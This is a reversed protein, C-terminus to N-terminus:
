LVVDGVALAAVGALRVAFDAVGDGTVDGLLDGTVADFRLQGAVNTFAGTGLFTFAQNGATAANADIASLDIVDEGAAFNQITDRAPNTTGSDTVRRFVFTDADGGGNMVDRGAGGTLTDDGDGGSLSDNQAGGLLRDDGDDGQLTDAQGRGRLEDDGEGGYLTDDGAGGDLTDNGAQGFLTDDGTLGSLRNALVNGLLLNPQANGAGERASDLLRLVEVHPTAALDYSVTSEITDTGFVATEVIVLTESSVRYTDNGEGGLVQGLVTGGITDFLDDGTGLEVNGVITGRNAVTDDFASLVIAPRFSANGSILGTNNLIVAGATEALIGYGNTSRITGDNMITITHSIAAGSVTVVRVAASDGNGSAEILGTNNLHAGAASEFSIGFNVSSGITSIPASAAAVIDGSNSVVAGVGALRAGFTGGSVLGTNGLTGFASELDVGVGSNSIIQGANAVVSSAGGTVAAGTNTGAYLVTGDRGVDLVLARSGNTIASAGTASGGSIATGLVTVYAPALNFFAFVTSDTATLTVEPLVTVYNDTVGFPGVQTLSSSFFTPM